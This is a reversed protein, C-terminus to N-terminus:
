TILTFLVGIIHRVLICVTIANNEVSDSYIASDSYTLCM